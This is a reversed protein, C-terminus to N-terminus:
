EKPRHAQAWKRFSTTAAIDGKSRNQEILAGIDEARLIPFALSSERAAYANGVLEFIEARKGDFRWFEPVGFRAYTKIKSQQSHTVDIEIVLDPPPDTHLDIAKKGAVRHINRIYFCADPEAGKRLSKRKFTTSGAALVELGTEEALVRVLISALEKDREHIFLPAMLELTGEDYNIRPASGGGLEGLLEEYEEWSIDRLLRQEGAELSDLAALIEPVRSTATQVSM